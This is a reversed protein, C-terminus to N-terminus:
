LFGESCGVFGWSFGWLSHATGRCDQLPRNETLQNGTALVFNDSSMQLHYMDESFSSDGFDSRKQVEAFSVCTLGLSDTDPGLDTLTRNHDVARKVCESLVSTDCKSTRSGTM